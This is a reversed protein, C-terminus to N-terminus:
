FLLYIHLFLTTRPPFESPMTGTTNKTATLFLLQRAVLLSNPPQGLTKLYTFVLVVLSEM